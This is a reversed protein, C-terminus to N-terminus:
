PSPHARHCGLVNLQVQFLVSCANLPPPQTEPPLTVRQMHRWRVSKAAARTGLTVVQLKLSIVLKLAASMMELSFVRNSSTTMRNPMMCTPAAMPTVCSLACVAATTRCTVLGPM